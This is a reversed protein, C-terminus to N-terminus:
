AKSDDIVKKATEIIDEQITIVEDPMPLIKGLLGETTQTTVAETATQIIEDAVTPAEPPTVDTTTVDEKATDAVTIEEIKAPTAEKLIPSAKTESTVKEAVKQPAETTETSPTTKKQVAKDDDTITAAITAAAATLTSIAPVTIKSSDKKSVEKAATQKTPLKVKPKEAAKSSAETLPDIRAHEEYLTEAPRGFWKRLFGGKTTAAKAITTKTETHTSAIKETISGGGTVKTEKLSETVVPVSGNTEKTTTSSVNTTETTTERVTPVSRSGSSESISSSEAKTVAPVFGSSFTRDESIPAGPIFSDIKQGLVYRKEDLTKAIKANKGKLFLDLDNSTGGVMGAGAVGAMALTDKSGFLSHFLKHLLCGILTGLFYIGFFLAATQLILYLM